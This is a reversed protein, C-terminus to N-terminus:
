QLVTPVPRAPHHGKPRASATDSLGPIHTARRQHASSQSLHTNPIAVDWQHCGWFWLTKKGLDWM